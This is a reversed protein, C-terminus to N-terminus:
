LERSGTAQSICPHLSDSQLIVLRGLGGQASEEWSVELCRGLQELWRGGEGWRVLGQCSGPGGQIGALSVTDNGSQVAVKAQQENKASQM